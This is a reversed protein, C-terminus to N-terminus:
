LEFSAEELGARKGALSEYDDILLLDRKTRQLNADISKLKEGHRELLCM